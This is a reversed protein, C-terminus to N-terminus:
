SEEKRSRTWLIAKGQAMCWVAEPIVLSMKNILSNAWIVDHIYVTFISAWANSAPSQRLM